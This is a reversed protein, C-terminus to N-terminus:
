REGEDGAVQHAFRHAAGPVQFAFVVFDLRIDRQRVQQFEAEIERERLVLLLSDGIVQLRHSSRHRAFPIPRNRPFDEEPSEGEGLHGHVFVQLAHALVAHGMREHPPEGAAFRFGAIGGAAVPRAGQGGVLIERASFEVVQELHAVLVRHHVGVETLQAGDFRGPLAPAVLHDVARGSGPLALRDGVHDGAQQRVSLADEEHALLRGGQIHDLLPEVVAPEAAETEVEVAFASSLLGHVRLQLLRHVLQALGSPARAVSEGVVFQFPLPVREVTEHPRQVLLAFREPTGDEAYLAVVRSDAVKGIDLELDAIERQQVPPTPFPDFVGGPAHAATGLGEPLM